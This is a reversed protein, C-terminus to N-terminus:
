QSRKRGEMIKSKFYDGLMRFEEKRGSTDRWTLGLRRGPTGEAMPRVAIDTGRLIESDLALQPLLSIGLDNAVMHVLTHLSTGQFSPHTKALNQGCAALVHDRLCHGDELLLLEDEPIADAAITESKCLPHDKPCALWFPDDAFIVHEMGPADHPFAMIVVDLDGNALQMLLRTTPEERLYLKLEPFRQRLAPLIQPFLFPGITPIVGLRLSTSLADGAARAVEMLGDVEQLSRRAREAIELGIPTPLVRRKSREVLKVGLLGELEQIGASLTSQTVFCAEGARGFHRTDMLTVLYRLQRLTPPNNM